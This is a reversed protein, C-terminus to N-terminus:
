AVTTHAQEGAACHSKRVADAARDAEPIRGADGHSRVARQDDSVCAIMQHAQQIDRRAQSRRRGRRGGDRRTEIQYPERAHREDPRDVRQLTGVFHGAGNALRAPIGAAFAAFPEVGADVDVCRLTSFDERDAVGLDIKRDGGAGEIQQVLEKGDPRHRVHV